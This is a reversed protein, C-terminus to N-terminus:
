NLKRNGCGPNIVINEAAVGTKRTVIDEIQARNAESLEAASVVVDAGDSTLSVVAEKFGKSALM